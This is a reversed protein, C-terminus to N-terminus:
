YEFMEPWGELSFKNTDVYANLATMDYILSNKAPSTKVQLPMVCCPVYDVRKIFGFQLYEKLTDRVWQLNEPSVASKNNTKFIPPPQSLFPVKVGYAILELIWDPTNLSKWFHIHDRLRGKIVPQEQKLHYCIYNIVYPDTIDLYCAYQFEDYRSKDIGFRNAVVDWNHIQRHWRESLDPLQPPDAPQHQPPAAPTPRRSALPPPSGERSM